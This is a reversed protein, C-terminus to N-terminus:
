RTNWEGQWERDRRVVHIHRSIVKEHDIAKNRVSAFSSRNDLRVAAM